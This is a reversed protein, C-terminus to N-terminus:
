NLGELFREPIEASFVQNVGFPSANYIVYRNDATIYPVPESYSSGYIGYARCDSLLTRHKKTRLNGIVIAAKSFSFDSCRLLM